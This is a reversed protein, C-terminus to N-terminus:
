FYIGIFDDIYDTIKITYSNKMKNMGATRGRVCVPPNYSTHCLSDGKSFPVVGMDGKVFPSLPPQLSTRTFVPIARFFCM